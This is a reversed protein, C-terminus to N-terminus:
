RKRRAFSEEDGPRVFPERHDSGSGWDDGKDARRYSQGKDFSPKGEATENNGSPQGRAGRTWGSADNDYGADHRNEPDQVANSNFAGGRKPELSPECEIRSRAGTDRNQGRPFSRGKSYMDDISVRRAM